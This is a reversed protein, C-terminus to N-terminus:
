LMENWIDNNLYVEHKLDFKKAFSKISNSVKKMFYFSDLEEKNLDDNAKFNIKLTNNEIDVHIDEINKYQRNGPINLGSKTPRTNKIDLKDALILASQIVNDTDFGDSHNKIAELILDNNKLKINNSEFYSKAFEYSRYAHNEKGQVAGVDHMIAAIKAEEILEKNANLKNLIEVVLNKVNNVHNFNHHGWADVNDEEREDIRKYIDRIKEDTYVKMFVEEASNM